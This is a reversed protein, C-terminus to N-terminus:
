IYMCNYIYYTSYTKFWSTYNIKKYIESCYHDQTQYILNEIVRTWIKYKLLLMGWHWLTLVKCIRSHWRACLLPWSSLTWELDLSGINESVILGNKLGKNMAQFYILFQYTLFEHLENIEEIISWVHENNRTNETTTVLMQLLTWRDGKRIVGAMEFRM